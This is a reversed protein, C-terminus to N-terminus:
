KKFHHNFWGWSFSAMLIGAYGMYYVVKDKTKM